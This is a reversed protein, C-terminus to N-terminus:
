KSYRIRNRSRQLSSITLSIFLTKDNPETMQCLDLTHSRSFHWCKYLHDMHRFPYCWVYWESDMYYYLLSMAIWVIKRKNKVHEHIMRPCQTDRNM